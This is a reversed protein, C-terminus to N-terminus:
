DRSQIILLKGSKIYIQGFPGVLKNSIGLSQGQTLTANVLPYLFGEINIGTVNSTMPLLSVYTYGKDEVRYSCDTLTIYNNADIISINVHNPMAHNLMQINALTHDLRSGTAGFMLVDQVGKNIALELALEMDTLNKDYADCSIVQGSHQKVMEFEAENISDFDGVSLHPQVGHLILFLAGRDAGIIYDQKHILQLSSLETQGGAFIVARQFTM